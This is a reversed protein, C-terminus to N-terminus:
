AVEERVTIAGGVRALDKEGLEIKVPFLEVSVNVIVLGFRFVANLPMPKLSERTPPKVTALLPGVTIQPPERVVAAGLVIVKVPPDSAAFPLQVKPTGTVPVVAPGFFLVVVATVEVSPPLPFVAVAERTTLSWVADM